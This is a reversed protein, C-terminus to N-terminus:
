EAIVLGYPPVRVVIRNGLSAVSGVTGDLSSLQTPLSGSAAPFDIALDAAAPSFSVLALSWQGANRFALAKVNPNSGNATVFHLEGALVRNLLYLAKGTERLQSTAALDRTIGFLQVLQGNAGYTDFGALTYICQRSVGAELWALAHWALAAGAEPSTLLANVVAPDANGGLTSANLEYISRGPAPPGLGDRFLAPLLQNKTAGAPASYLYYPAIATEISPDALASFTQAFSPDQANAGVLFHIRSDSATGTRFLQSARNAVGALTRPSLIGAPRFLQNWNEDGFEVVIEPFGYRARLAALTQGAEMWEDARLTSPMVIWPRAGTEACLELFDTLGYSYDVQTNDGPRYRSARRAGSDAMRNEWTEGLQGQWDRLYGPKLAKLTDVVERRFPRNEPNAPGLSADDVWVSSGAGTTELRFELTGVPGSDVATFTFQYLQWNATPQITQDFFPTSGLRRFYARLQSGATGRAWFGIQWQGNVPLMKGARAGIADIYSELGIADSSNPSLRISRVGHSGPRVSARDPVIAGPTNNEFWWEAPLDRDDIRTLSVIDGQRLGALLASTEFWAFGNRLENRTVNGRLGAAPGSLVEFTANNWFGPPRSTWATDDLFWNPGSNQVCMLARDLTGEFGPNKLVNNPLQEAGWSTWSGLNLGLPLVASASVAPSVTLGSEISVGPRSSGALLLILIAAAVAFRKGAFRKVAFRM